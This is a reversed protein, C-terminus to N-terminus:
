KKHWRVRWADGLVDKREPCGDSFTKTQAELLRNGLDQGGLIDEGM